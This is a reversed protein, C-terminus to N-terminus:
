KAQLRSIYEILALIRARAYAEPDYPADVYHEAAKVKYREGWIPMDRTGHGKLSNHGDITDYVRAFPFVGGNRKSLQTLDPPSVKLMDVYDGGRGSAGHCLMCNSEYERKGIDGKGKEQALAGFTLGLLAAGVALSRVGINAM